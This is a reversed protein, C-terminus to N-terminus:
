NGLFYFSLSGCQFSSSYISCKEGAILQTKELASNAVSSISLTSPKEKSGVSFLVRFPIAGFSSHVTILANFEVGLGENEKVGKRKM